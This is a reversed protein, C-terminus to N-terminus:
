SGLPVSVNSSYRINFTKVFPVVYSGVSSAVINATQVGNSTAVTYVVSANSLGVSSLYTNVASRIQSQTMAHNLMVQRGAYQVAWDLSVNNFLMIAVYAIGVIGAVFANSVIAFELAAAGGADSLFRAFRM